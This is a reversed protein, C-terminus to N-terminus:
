CLIYHVMSIFCSYAIFHLRVQGKLDGKTHFIEWPLFYDGMTSPLFFRGYHSFRGHISFYRGHYSFDGMTPFIEWPLFYREHPGRRLSIGKRLFIGYNELYGKLLFSYTNANVESSFSLVIRSIQNVESFHNALEAFKNCKRPIQYTLKM